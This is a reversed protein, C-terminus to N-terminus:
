GGMEPTDVAPSASPAATSETSVPTDGPLATAPAIAQQGAVPAKRSRKGLTPTILTILFAGGIAVVATTLALDNGHVSISLPSGPMALGWAAFALMASIIEAEPLNRRRKGAPARYVNIVLVAGVLALSVGFAWWRFAAFADHAGLGAVVGVIATYPALVESPIAATLTAIASSEGPASGGPPKLGAATYLGVRSDVDELPQDRDIALASLSRLSM